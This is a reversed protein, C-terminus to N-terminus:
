LKIVKMINSIHNVHWIEVTSGIKIRDLPLRQLPTWAPILYENKENNVEVIAKYPTNFEETKEHGIKSAWVDFFLEERPSMESKERRYETFDTIVGTEVRPEFFPMQRNMGLDNEMVNRFAHNYGGEFRWLRLLVAPISDDKELEVIMYIDKTIHSSEFEVIDYQIVNSILRSSNINLDYGM